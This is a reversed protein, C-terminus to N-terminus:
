RTLKCALDCFSTYKGYKAGTTKNCGVSWSFAETRPELVKAADRLSAPICLLCRVLWAVSYNLRNIASKEGCVYLLEETM